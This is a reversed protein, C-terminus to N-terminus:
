PTLAHREGLAHHWAEVDVGAPDHLSRPELLQPVGAVWHLESRGVVSLAPVLQDEEVDRRGDLAPRGREVHDGAGGFLDEDRERDAAADAAVVVHVLQQADAGVLDRHVGGGHSVRRQQLPAGIAEAALAHHDRDVGSADRVAAAPLDHDIGPSRRGAAVRHSPGHLGGGLSTSIVDISRSPV